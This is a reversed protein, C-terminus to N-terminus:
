DDAVDKSPAAAPAQHLRDYLVEAVQPPLWRLDRLEQISLERIADLSGFQNLLQARRKPGLGEIGDLVSDIMSKGRKSRHFSIAFRHAEDRLRQMMYLAESAAPLAIPVSSGPRYLLEERKALAVFEVDTVGADQAALQAAHLQPLGGDIVILDARPFRGDREMWHALRRGVVERMAGVDDSGIVDKVNFHRYHSKSPLGDEFVVMSGVYNTGQLHSMDFCEM